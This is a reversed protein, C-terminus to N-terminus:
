HSIRAKSLGFLIGWLRIYDVLREEVEPLQGFTVVSPM